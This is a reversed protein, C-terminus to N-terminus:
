AKKDPVTGYINTIIGDILAGQRHLDRLVKRIDDKRESLSAYNGRLQDLNGLRRDITTKHEEIQTYIPILVAKAWNHVSRNCEMFIVRARSVLTIFFKKMVFHQETMMMSPSNRFSEAERYLNKYQIMFPRASFITPQMKPLGYVRNFHTYIREVLTHIEAAQAEVRRLDSFTGAFFTQMGRSLGPTTWSNRMVLRTDAILKDFRTINLLGLLKKAQGSLLRRTVRFSEVEKDYDEGHKKLKVKMGQIVEASRGQLDHIEGLEAQMSDIKSKIFKRSSQVVPGIENSIKECVVKQKYFVVYESLQKELDPLGSDSVLEANKRIKGILGNRASVPFVRNRDIKLLRRTEEAQRNIFGKIVETDQLEDWLTDIKNLAAIRGDPNQRTATCVHNIWVDMDTKTVGTDAGLVFLIAHAKSLMSLTLEPEAGLANLGPTDLIVLGQQLLRHPYNIIAHRWVPIEIDEDHDPLEAAMNDLGLEHATQRDIKKSKLIEQLTDAMADPSSLDLPLTTWNFGKKRLEAITLPSKRTEIPLLRICPEVQDDYRIETPCMTTRGPASPLLRRDHDAFFIANILETKGRSFEGVLAITLTDSHLEEILEFLKLEDNADLKHQSNYWAGYSEIAATLRNRWIGYDGLQQEFEDM